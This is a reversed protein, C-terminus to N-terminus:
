VRRRRPAERQRRVSSAPRTMALFEKEDLIRLGRRRAEEYKSGPDHGAVVYDVNRSVTESTKGGLREVFARADARPLADLTGTFVFAKGSLPGRRRRGEELVLGRELCSDIIRQNAPQKFFTALDAALAPGIGAVATLRAEDTHRIRDLSGFEEALLRATRVGVGPIGLAYLFRALDTRRARDIAAALNRASVTGFRELRRLDAERLALVDAVTRVLGIEVLSDVTEPGLGRIDLADRSGFHEIAARLQAPCALGNPCRLTPGDRVVRTRCAPCTSPPVPRRGRAKGGAVREVVEPIVDGARVVRVRDGARLDKRALESWNHLTARGVTVGGLEIPALVAVPTLVGTRGVQTVIREITTERERPSFKFAIAWRPHRATTRLRARAELDNLKVVVGDIEYDLADRRAEMDRHYALIEEASALRRHHPSVRLGWGRMAELAETARRLRPGGEHHLIDYFFVDLARTATIRPDLQRLSGAAANRPNAFLSRGERGLRANLARFDALRMIAEGRVALLRPAPRTGRLVLPVSPITRVNPTIEEGRVGDGRTSARTLRGRDYVVEISLGDFKPEALYDAVGPARLRADFRRVDAPDTVSELSLMPALHSVERFGPLVAGAVRQTPSDSTVLEPFRRELAALEAFLADYDADSIEPRDLAYYLYDHRRIEDRLREIRRQAQALTRATVGTSM